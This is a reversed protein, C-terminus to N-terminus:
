TRSETGGTSRSISTRYDFEAGVVVFVIQNEAVANLLSFTLLVDHGQAFISAELANARTDCTPRCFIGGVGVFEVARCIAKRNSRTVAHNRESVLVAHVTGTLIPRNSRSLFGESLCDREFIADNGNAVVNDEIGIREFVAVRNRGGAVTELQREGIRDSRSIANVVVQCLARAVFVDPRELAVLFVAEQSIAILENIM